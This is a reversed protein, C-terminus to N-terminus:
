EIINFHKLLKEISNTRMWLPFEPNPESKLKVIYLDEKCHKIGAVDNPDLYHQGVKILSPKSAGYQLAYQIKREEADRDIGL